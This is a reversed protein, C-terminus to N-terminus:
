VKETSNDGKSKYRRRGMEKYSFIHVISLLDEALEQQRNPEKETSDFVLIETGYQSFFFEILEFAFRCLRDKYHVVVTSIEGKIVEKIISQLGKRKWNLGSGIDEVIISNPYKERMAQKQRSLDDKQHNSSVRCYCIIKKSPINENSTIDNSIERPIVSNVNYRRSGKESTRIFAIQGDDAWRRLTNGCVGLTQQAVKGSVYTPKHLKSNM